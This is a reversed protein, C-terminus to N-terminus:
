SAEKPAGQPRGIEKGRLFAAAIDARTIEHHYMEVARFLKIATQDNTEKLHRLLLYGPSKGSDGLLSRVEPTRDRMFQDHASRDARALLPELDEWEAKTLRGKEVM